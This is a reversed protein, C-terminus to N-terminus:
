YPTTKLTEPVDVFHQKLPEPVHICHQKLPQPVGVWGGGLVPGQGFINFLCGSIFNLWRTTLLYTVLYAVFSLQLTITAAYTGTPM